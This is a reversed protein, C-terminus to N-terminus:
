LRLKVTELLGPATYVKQEASFLYVSHVYHLM